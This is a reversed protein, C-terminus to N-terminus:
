FGLDVEKGAVYLGCYYGYTLGGGHNMGGMLANYMPAFKQGGCNGIAWLGEIPLGKDRHMVQFKGNTVMGAYASMVPRASSVCAFFPAEKIPMLKLPDVGFEEDFGQDCYRNYREVTALFRDKPVGIFDALEELTNAGYVLNGSLEPTIGEPNGVGALFDEHFKDVYDYGSWGVSVDRDTYYFNRHGWTQAKLKDRWNVDIIDYSIRDPLNMVTDHKIWIGMDENWFREGLKSVGLACTGGIASEASGMGTDAFADIQAGIWAAM